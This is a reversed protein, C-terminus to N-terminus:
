RHRGALILNGLLVTAILAAILFGLVDPGYTITM